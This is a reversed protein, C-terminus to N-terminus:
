YIYFRLIASTLALGLCWLVKSKFKNSQELRDIRVVIGPVTPTKPDGMLASIVVDLKEKVEQVIEQLSQLDSM